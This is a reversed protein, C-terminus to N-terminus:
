IVIEFITKNQRSKQNSKANYAFLEKDINYGEFDSEQLDIRVDHRGNQTLIYINQSAKSSLNLAVDSYSNAGVLSSSRAWYDSILCEHLHGCIMFDININKRSYKSILKAIKSSDM